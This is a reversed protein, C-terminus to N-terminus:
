GDQDCRIAHEPRRGATPKAADNKRLKAYPKVDAAPLMRATSPGRSSAHGAIPCPAPKSVSWVSLAAAEPLHLAMEVLVRLFHTLPTLRDRMGEARDLRPHTRGVKQHFRQWPNGGFDRQM